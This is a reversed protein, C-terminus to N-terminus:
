ERHQRNASHSTRAAGSITQKDLYVPPREDVAFRRKSGLAVKANLLDSASMHKFPQVFYQNHRMPRKSM